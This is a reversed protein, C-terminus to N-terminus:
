EKILISDEAYYIYFGCYMHGIIGLFDRENKTLILAYM